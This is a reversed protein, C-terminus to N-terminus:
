EEVDINFEDGINPCITGDINFSLFGESLLYNIKLAIPIKKQCMKDLTMFSYQFLEDDTYEQKCELFGTYQLERCTELFLENYIKIDKKSIKLKLQRIFKECDYLNM